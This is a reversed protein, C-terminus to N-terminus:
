EQKLVLAINAGTHTKNVLVAWLPKMGINYARGLQSITQPM